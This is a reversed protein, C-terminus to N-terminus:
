GPEGGIAKALATARGSLLEESQSSLRSKDASDFVDEDKLTIAPVIRGVKFFAFIGDLGRATSQLHAEQRGTAVGLAARGVLAEPPIVDLLVKLGGSFTAKYVPTGVILGQASQVQGIFEAIREDDAQGSLLKAADFDRFSYNLVEIDQQKVRAEIGKLLQSSRSSLSPSGHLIIIKNRSM